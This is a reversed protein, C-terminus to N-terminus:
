TSISLTGGLNKNRSLTNSLVGILKTGAIEFIVTGGSNNSNGGSFGNNSTMQSNGSGSGGSSAVGSSSGSSTGSAFSSIASGIAILAIGAVVAAIGGGFPNAMAAKLAESALGFALILKGYKVMIGGLTGLLANGAAELINGGSGIANGIADGFGSLADFTGQSMIDLVSENFALLNAEVEAQKELQKSANYAAEWDLGKGELAIDFNDALKRLDSLIIGAYVSMDAPVVEALDLLSIAKKNKGLNLSFDLPVIGGLASVAKELDINTLEISQIQGELKTGEKVLKNYDSQLDIARSVSFNLGERENGARLQALTNANQLEIGKKKIEDNKAAQQSELILLKESNQVILNLAATAKARKLISITLTDFTSAVEGNLIKEKSVNGLYSPYMKQLEDVASIRDKISLNTNEAQTKLLRLSIAEKQASKAGKLGAQQVAELGDVYDNLSNTLKEQEEKLAKAKDKTKFLKDGFILLLSTVVSIALTIGGFGTLDKLMAKLAGGASGTRAKLYGFQETLNTINNSVGMIGFPADQITRSFATMASSGNAAGKTLKGMGSSGGLQNTQKNVQSLSASLSKNENSLKFETTSLQSLQSQFSKSSIAGDKFQKQIKAISASVQVSNTVNKKLSIQLEENRKKLVDIASVATKIGKQLGSPDAGIGVELQAM